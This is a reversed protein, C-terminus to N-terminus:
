GQAINVSGQLNGTTTGICLVMMAICADDYIRPKGITFADFLQAVNSATLPVEVIRRLLTIGVDGALGSSASATFSTVQRIGMTTAPNAGGPVLPAMQGISETTNPKVYRWTRGTNGAADVGTIDWNGVVSGGSTYVELWPEVDAGATPDRGAPLNGPTTVTQATTLTTNLGSAAWLRDYLIVTGQTTGAMAIRGLYSLAPAVPNTLTIAGATSATPVYGSGASILPPNSGAAPQGAAKWMSHWTGAGKSVQAAKFIGRWQGPLAAVLDDM